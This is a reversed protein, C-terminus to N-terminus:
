EFGFRRRRRETGIYGSRIHAIMMMMMMAIKVKDAAIRFLQTSSKKFWTKRFPTGIFKVTEVEGKDFTGSASCTIRCSLNLFM